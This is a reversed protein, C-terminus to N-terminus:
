MIRRPPYQMWATWTQNATSRTADMILWNRTRRYRHRTQFATGRGEVASPGYEAGNEPCSNRSGVPFPSSVARLEGSSTLAKFLTETVADSDYNNDTVITLAVQQSVLSARKAPDPGTADM